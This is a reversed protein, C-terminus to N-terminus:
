VGHNQALKNFHFLPMVIKCIKHNHLCILLVLFTIMILLLLLLVTKMMASIM